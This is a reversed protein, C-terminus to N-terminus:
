FTHGTESVILLGVCITAIHIFFGKWTSAPHHAPHVDLM